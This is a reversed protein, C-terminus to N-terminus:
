LEVAQTRQSTYLRPRVKPLEGQECATHDFCVLGPTTRAQSVVKHAFRTLGQWPPTVVCIGGDDQYQGYKHRHSCVLVRPIKEDANAAELQEEALNVSLQTAALGRRMTTGIHHRFVYRIGKVDLTLRDWIPLGNDPNVRCKLARGIAIEANGTHCETGRVIFTAAAKSVLPRLVQLAAEIHDGIDPSIIQTTRHHNGEILDGNIVLGYPRGKSTVDIWKQTDQWCSWLWRQVPNQNVSTDELTRFRPPLLGVTSGCHLDSIAFILEPKQTAM